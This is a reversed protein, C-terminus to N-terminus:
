HSYRRCTWSRVQGRRLFSRRTVRGRTRTVRTRFAELVRAGSVALRAHDIQNLVGTNFTANQGITVQSNTFDTVNPANLESGGGLSLVTSVLGTLQPMNLTANVDLSLGRNESDMVTLVPLNLTTGQGLNWETRDARELAGLTYTQGPEFFFRVRENGNGNRDILRLGSLDIQGGSTYRFDLIDDQGTTVAITELGSLNITGGADAEITKVWQGSGAGYTLSQLSSLDLESGTGSASFITEHGTRTNTYSNAGFDVSGGNRVQIRGQGAPFVSTSSSATFVGDNSTILGDVSAQDLVAIQRGSQINLTANAGLTLTTVQNGSGPVNFNITVGAPIEVLFTDAGNVPVENIDWNGATNYLGDGASGTWVATREAAGVPNATGMALVAATTILGIQAYSLTKSSAM